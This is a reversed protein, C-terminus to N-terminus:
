RRHASAQGNQQRERSMVEAEERWIPLRVTFVSGREIASTVSITGGLQEIITRALYLGLGVGPLSTPEFSDASDAAADPRAPLRAQGRYFKEFIHPMDEPAVGCGTDAVSIAIWDDEAQASVTIRGGDPTYKIANEILTCLVRRLAKRDARAPPLYAPLRAQLDHRHLAAAHREVRLCVRLMELMDVREPTYLYKGEEIRSLDLLNTVLDIQRDCELAIIELSERREPESLENHLMLRSLTKITTLPTRLEHSVGSVVESKLDNLQSLRRNLEKLRAERQQIRDAMSAFAASLEAVEGGGTAAPRVIASGTGFRRVAESLQRIPGAIRQALVLAALLACLLALLSFLAYRKFQDRAPRYLTASPIGIKIVCNTEGARALGHMRRVGDSPSETEVLATRREGLAAFLPSSSIDTGIFEDPVASHYLIRGQPDYVTIIAGDSPEVSRFISKMAAAQVRAVAAGGGEIPVAIVLAPQDADSTWDTFAAWSRRQALESFLDEAVPPPLPGAQSPWSSVLRNASDFIRLDIWHPHTEVMFRFYDVPLERKATYHAAVTNLPQRQADIWRELAVAALQAQQELSRNIQNNSERWLGVLEAMGVLMLPVAVGLALALLQKRINM